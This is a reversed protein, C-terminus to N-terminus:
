DPSRYFSFRVSFIFSHIGSANSFLLSLSQRPVLAHASLNLSVITLRCIIRIHSM